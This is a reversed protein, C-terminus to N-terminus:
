PAREVHYGAQNNVIDERTQAAAHDWCLALFSGLLLLRIM